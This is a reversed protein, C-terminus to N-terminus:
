RPLEVFFVSGEGEKSEAWIRGSNRDVIRRVLPLGIGEGKKVGPVDGCFFLQWIKPLDAAKMGLGNDAVSYVVTNGKIEASVTIELKRNKDRYKFANSLLNSFIHNVSDADATCSPLAGAKLMAGTEEFQFRMNDMIEKLAANVDVTGIHLEVKGARSLKLMATIVEDIRGVSEQIFKLAAPLRDGSIEGFVNRKEEPLAGPDIMEQLERIDKAINESFGQINVLPTRLDHTTIYLFSDMEKKVESLREILREKEAEIKKRETIDSIVHVAGSFRGDKGAIPDVIVEFTKEGAKLEMTERRMSIKARQLPCGDIHCETGHVIEYCHLGLLENVPRGFVKETAKNARTLVSDADLLWVVDSLADFTKQWDRATQKVAAQAKKAESIDSVTIRWLPAGEARPGMSSSLRAWFPAAGVMRLECDKAANKELQRRHLYFIDQDEPLIFKTLPEGAFPRSEAGFLKAATFNATLIIGNADLTLYGVPAQDYLDFYRAQAAQLQAQATILEENQLELEIQHVRLEHMLKKAQDHTLAHRNEPLEAEKELFQTEARSRLARATAPLAPGRENNEM